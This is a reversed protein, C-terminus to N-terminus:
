RGRRPADGERGIPGTAPFRALRGSRLLAYVVAGDPSLVLPAAQLGEDPGYPPLVADSAVAPRGTRADLELPASRLRWPQDHDRREIYVLRTQGEPGVAVNPFREDVGCSATNDGATASTLRGAAVITATDDSLELWWLQSPGYTVGGPQHRQQRLAVFVWKSLRRVDPWVPDDLFVAGPGPPPTAWVLPESPETRGSAYTTRRRAIPPEDRPDLRCRYLRGDGAPFLITRSDGPAWCARGTPLVDTAVRRLLAGDSLRFVGWGCFDADDPSVWRGVAELGGGPPHWPSIGVLSWRYDHPLRIPARRGNTHDILELGEGKPWSTSIADVTPAERVVDEAAEPGRLRLGSAGIGIALLTWGVALAGISRVLTMLTM